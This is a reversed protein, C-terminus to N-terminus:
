IWSHGEIHTIPWKKVSSPWTDTNHALASDVWNLRKNEVVITPVKENKLALNSTIYKTLVTKRSEKTM